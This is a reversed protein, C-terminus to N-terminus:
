HKLKRGVGLLGIFASLLFLTTSPEPVTVSLVGEWGSDNTAAFPGSAAPLLSGWGLADFFVSDDSTGVADGNYAGFWIRAIGGTFEPDSADYGNANNDSYATGSFSFTGIDAGGPRLYKTSDSTSWEVIYGPDWGPPSLAVSVAWGSAATGTPASGAPNWVLKEGWSRAAPNDLLWINFRSIGEGAGLSTRWNLYTNYDDPQTHPAVPNYFTDYYTTAWTEHVRRANPQVAKYTSLDAVSGATAPFLDLLDNPDFAFTAASASPAGVGGIVLLALVLIGAIRAANNM